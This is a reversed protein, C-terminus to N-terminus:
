QVNTEEPIGGEVIATHHADCLYQPREYYGCLYHGDVLRYPAPVQWTANALCCQSSDESYQHESPWECRYGVSTPIYLPEPVPEDLAKAWEMFDESVKAWIERVYTPQEAGYFTGMWAPINTEHPPWDRGMWEDFHKSCLWGPNSRDMAQLHGYDQIRAHADANCALGDVWTSRSPWECSGLRDGTDVLWVAGYTDVETHRGIVPAPAPAPAVVAVRPVHEECAYCGGYGLFRRGERFAAPMDGEYNGSELMYMAAASGREAGTPHHGDRHHLERHDEHCCLLTHNESARWPAIVAGPSVVAVAREALAEDTGEAPMHRNCYYEDDTECFSSCSDCFDDDCEHCTYAYDHKIERGCDACHTYTEAYCEKCLDRAGYHDYCVINGCADCRYYDDEYMEAGCVDCCYLDEDGERGRTEAPYSNYEKVLAFLETATTSHTRAEAHLDDETSEYGESTAPAEIYSLRGPTVEFNSLGPIDLGDDSSESPGYFKTFDNGADAWWQRATQNWSAGGAPANDTGVWWNRLESLSRIQSETFDAEGACVGYSFMHPHVGTSQGNDYCPTTGSPMWLVEGAEGITFYIVGTLGKTTTGAEENYTEGLHLVPWFAVLITGPAAFHRGDWADFYEGDYAIHMVEPWTRAFEVIGRIMRVDLRQARVRKVADWIGSAARLERRADRYRNKAATRSRIVDANLLTASRPKIIVASAGSDFQIGWGIRTLLRALSPLFSVAVSANRFDGHSTAWAVTVMPTPLRWNLRFPRAVPTLIDGPLPRTPAGYVERVQEDLDRNPDYWTQTM